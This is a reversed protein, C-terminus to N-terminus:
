VDKAATKHLVQQRKKYKWVLVGIIIMLWLPWLLMAQVIFDLFGVGGLYISHGIRSLFPEQQKAVVELQIDQTQHVTAVQSFDLQITSYSLRDQVEQQTLAAIDAALQSTGKANVSAGANAQQALKEELLKLQLRKAEYRQTNLFLMFKSLTNIFRVTQESPIRVVMHAQPRIKYFVSQSGDTNSRNFQDEVQKQIEKQEVFGSFESSLQELQLATQYVDKVEFEITATKVLQRNQEVPNAQNSVLVDPVDQTKDAQAPPPSTPAAVSQMEASAAPADASEPNKSCANLGLLLSSILLVKYTQQKSIHHQM